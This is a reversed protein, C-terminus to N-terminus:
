PLGYIEFEKLWNRWTPNSWGSTFLRVYHATVPTFSLTDNGGDGNNGDITNFIQTWHTNDLSIEISYDTAYNSDWELIIQDISYDGELDVIIYEAALRNKGVAKATQWSTLLNGDVAYAGSNSISDFSSVSV